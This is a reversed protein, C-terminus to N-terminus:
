TGIACFLFTNGVYKEIYYDLCFSWKAATAICFHLSHILFKIVDPLNSM